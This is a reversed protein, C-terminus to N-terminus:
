AHIRLESGGLVANGCTVLGREEDMSPIFVITDFGADMASAEFREYPAYKVYGDSTKLGAERSATTEHIPTIKVMWHDPNFMAALKKGDLVTDDHVAFNLCYKRGVPEPLASVVGALEVLPLQMGDFMEDRQAEDTSNISLQLGAQGNYLDNKIYTCWRRLIPKLGKAAKPAMTTFVPHLTEVRLDWAKQYELKDYILRATFEIVNDANFVPEGMRAFHLNLRDTYTVDDFAIIANIMQREMDEITANGGFKIAPVDCFNCRMPCGYQTSLTIVWKQTLPMVPGNPVGDIRNEYGLFPARINKEKGYDGISLTELQGRSYEDVIIFGTPIRTKKM